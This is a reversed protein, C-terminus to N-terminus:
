KRLNEIEERTLGTATIIEVLPRGIGLLNRAVQFVGERRGEKRGEKRGEQRGREEANYVASAEDHRAKSRIRELEKFKDSATVSRYAAVAKSLVDVGLEEIESLDKETKARFLSLWLKLISDENNSDIVSNGGNINIVKPLKPLECYIACLKDTLLDYRKVELLMFESYYEPSGEFQIFDIISIIITQPLDKYKGSAPLSSSYERALYYTAREIYDKEDAIQVELNIHRGDVIMNIDLRCFKEGVTEPAIETNTVVFEEISEPSIRLLMAVLNQLLDPNQAFLMKVVLDYMFRYTLKITQPMNDGIAAQTQTPNNDM